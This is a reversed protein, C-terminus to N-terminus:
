PRSLRFISIKDSRTDSRLEVKPVKNVRFGKDALTSWLLEDTRTTRLQHSLLIATTPKAMASLVSVLPQVLEELWVVDALLIVDWGNGREEWQWTESRFWDLERVDVKCTSLADRNAEVNRALNALSYELDTLVVLSAGLSAAKLGATGTGAGLELVSKDLCFEEAHSELYASLVIAADWSVLGTGMHAGEAQEDIKLGSSASGFLRGEIALSASCSPPSDEKVSVLISAHHPLGRSFADEEFVEFAGRENSYIELDLSRPNLGTRMVLADRVSEGPRLRLRFGEHEEERRFSVLVVSPKVDDM